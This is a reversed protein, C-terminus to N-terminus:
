PVSWHVKMTIYPSVQTAGMPFNNIRLTWLRNLPWPENKPFDPWPLKSIDAMAQDFAKRAMPWSKSARPILVKTM